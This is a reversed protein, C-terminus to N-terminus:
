ESTKISFDWKDAYMGFVYDFKYKVIYDEDIGEDFNVHYVYTKIGNRKLELLLDKHKSIYRYSVTIHKIGMKKLRDAKKWYINELVSQSPMSSLIGSNVGEKVAKLSFLEMMLRNPAIFSKSFLKPENIKDTVLIANSHEEFWKNIQDIGMPSYKGYIKHKLFEQYTVPISGKYNTISKWHKWDHAAVYKGDITKLIDLEFLRFGKTYNQELAELSNTYIKNDIKGGAHAIYRLTDKKYTNYYNTKTPIEFQNFDSRLFGSTNIATIENINKKIFDNKDEKIYDSFFNQNHNVKAGSLIIKPLDLQYITKTTDVDISKKEANTILYLGRTEKGFISPDGMKLHDPFIYITTNSLVNNKKLFSIFDEVMYDVASVMFELDTNQPSVFKEMRSDYIGNPFHTDTTSIFLAFPQKDIKSLVKEKALEFLDKDRIGYSSFNGNNKINYKDIIEGFHFTHLMMKTGSYSTNGNMYTLNYGAKELTYSISSIKSDYSSQFISNGEIGFFAPFGTMMTYLAGTTWGSGENQELDFYSWNEKLKNLSPTLHSFKKNLFSREISELSIVIINNGKKAKLESPKTYNNLNNEQLVKEFNNNNTNVISFLTKSDKIFDSKFILMTLILLISMTYAGRLFGKKIRKLISNKLLFIHSYYFISWSFLCLLVGIIIQTKYLGVMSKVSMINAHVFFQYGVFTQTFYLSIVQLVIILTSLVSIIFLLKNKKIILNILGFLLAILCIALVNEKGGFNTTIHKLYEM